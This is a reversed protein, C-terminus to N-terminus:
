ARTRSLLVKALVIESTLLGPALELPASTTLTIETRKSAIEVTDFAVRVKGTTTQVDSIERFAAGYPAIQPLALRRLSVFHSKTGQTRKSTATSCALWHPSRITRQWHLRVMKETQLTKTQSRIYFGHGIFQTTVLGTVVLDSYRPRYDACYADTAPKVTVFGGTWSAPKGLDAKTAAVALAAAVGEPTTRVTFSDGAATASTASLLATVAAVAIARARLLPLRTSVFRM